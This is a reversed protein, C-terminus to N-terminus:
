DTRLADALPVATLEVQWPRAVTSTLADTVTEPSPDAVGDWALRRQVDPPLLNEVPVTLEDSVGALAGRIAALRAAAEPHSRAWSAQNPLEGRPGTRRPLHSDPLDRARSVASFWRTTSRRQRPTSYGDLEALKGATVPMAQAAAVIAADTLVRGPTIDRERAVADRAEWLERVVALKRRDGIRHVGSTRRWPETRPAPAPRTRVYEFEQRAWETRGKEALDAAVADRLEVLVEVDLAAYNLWAAPLPRRSWDAAGHGKRLTLGLYTEVMTALNVRPQGLLRGALETDFLSAPRLGIELLCALDQDAAHLVWEPGDLAAALPALADPHPIPDILLSTAGRKLQVLYARPFYRHGSAREADVALPGTEATLATAAAEFEAPTSLVPPVGGAPAELPRPATM